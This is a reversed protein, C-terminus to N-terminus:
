RIIKAYLYSDSGDPHYKQMVGELHFGLFEVLRKGSKFNCKITAWYRKVSYTEEHEDLHRKITRVQTITHVMRAINFWVECVGDWQFAAGFACIPGNEDEMIWAPGCQSELYLRYRDKMWDFELKLSDIDSMVMPRTNIM